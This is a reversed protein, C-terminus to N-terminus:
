PLQCFATFFSERSNEMTVPTLKVMIDEGDCGGPFHRFIGHMIHKQFYPVVSFFQSIYAVQVGVQEPNTMILGDAPQPPHSFFGQDQRLQPLFREGEEGISVRGALSFDPGGYLLRYALEAGLLALHEQEAPLVPQLMFLNGFLQAYRDICHFSM